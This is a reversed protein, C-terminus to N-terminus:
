LSKPLYDSARPSTNDKAVGPRVRQKRTTLMAHAMHKRPWSELLEVVGEWRPPNFAKSVM